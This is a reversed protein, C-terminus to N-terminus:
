PSPSSTTTTNNLPPSRDCDSLVKGSYSDTEISERSIVGYDDLRWMEDNGLVTENTKRIDIIFKAFNLLRPEHNIIVNTMLFSIFVLDGEEELLAILENAQDLSINRFEDTPSFYFGPPAGIRHINSATWDGYEVAKRYYLMKEEDSRAGCMEFIFEGIAAGREIFEPNPMLGKEAEEELNIKSYTKYSIIDPSNDYNSVLGYLSAMGGLAAGIFLTKIHGSKKNSM